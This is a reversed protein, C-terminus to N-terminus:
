CKYAGRPRAWVPARRKARLGDLGAYANTATPTDEYEYSNSFSNQFREPLWPIRRFTWRVNGKYSSESVFYGKYAGLALLLSAFNTGGIELVIRKRTELSSNFIGHCVGLLEIHLRRGWLRPCHIYHGKLQIWRNNQLSYGCIREAGVSPPDGPSIFM